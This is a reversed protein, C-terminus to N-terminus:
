HWWMDRIMSTLRDIFRMATGHARVRAWRRKAARAGTRSGMVMDALRQRLRTPTPARKPGHAPSASHRSRTRPAQPDHHLRPLRYLDLTTSARSARSARSGQFQCQGHFHLEYRTYVHAMPWQRMNEYTGASQRSSPGKILPRKLTAPCRRCRRSGFTM